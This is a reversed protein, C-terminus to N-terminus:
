ASEDERAKAVIYSKVLSSRVIDEIEMSVFSFESMSALVRMFKKVGERDANKTLDSQTYDGCFVVRTNDGLRTILSDLEHFSWNQIEDVVVVSDRLTLGRLFSSTSFYLVGSKKLLDYADGRNFIEAMVAKYPEEYPAQKEYMTGPMFGMDRTPVASRYIVLNDQEGRNISNLAAHCALFTKGTGALGHIVLNQGSAYSDLVKKQNATKPTVPVPVM